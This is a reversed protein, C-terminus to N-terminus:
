GADQILESLQQWVSVKLTNHKIQIGTKAMHLADILM